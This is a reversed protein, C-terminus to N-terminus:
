TGGRDLTFAVVAIRHKESEWDRKLLYEGWKTVKNGGTEICFMKWIDSM